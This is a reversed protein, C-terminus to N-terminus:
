ILNIVSSMKMPYLKPTLWTGRLGYNRLGPFYCRFFPPLYYDTDAVIISAVRLVYLSATSYEFLKKDSLFSFM